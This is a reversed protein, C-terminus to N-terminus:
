AQREGQPFGLQLSMLSCPRGQRAGPRLLLEHFSFDRIFCCPGKFRREAWFPEEPEEPQGRTSPVSCDQRFKGRIQSGGGSSEGDWGRKGVALGPGRWAGM